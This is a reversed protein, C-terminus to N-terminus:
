KLCEKIVNLAEGSTAMRTTFRLLRWGLRAAENYKRMDDEIGKFRFHRGDTGGGEIEVALKYDKDIYRNGEGCQRFIIFDFKWCRPPAFRYEREFHIGAHKLQLALSEEGESLAQPIIAKGAM